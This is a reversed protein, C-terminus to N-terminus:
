SEPLLCRPLGSTIKGWLKAFASHVWRRQGDRQQVGAELAAYRCAALRATGATPALPGLSRPRREAACRGRASLAAARACAMSLAVAPKPGQASVAVNQPRTSTAVVNMECVTPAITIRGMTPATPACIATRPRGTRRRRLCGQGFRRMLRRALLARRAACM